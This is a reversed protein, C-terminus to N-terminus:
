RKYNSSPSKGTTNGFSRPASIMRAAIEGCEKCEITLQDSEALRETVHENLCKFNRLMKM